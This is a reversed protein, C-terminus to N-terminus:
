IFHNSHEISSSNLNIIGANVDKCESYFIKIIHKISCLVISDQDLALIYNWNSPTNILSDIGENLAKGM